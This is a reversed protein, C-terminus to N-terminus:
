KRVVTIKLIQECDYCFHSNAPLDMTKEGMYHTKEENYTIDEHKCSLKPKNKKEM